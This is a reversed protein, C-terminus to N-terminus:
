NGYESLQQNLMGLYQNFSESKFESYNMQRLINILEKFYSRCKEYDEFKFNRSCIDLILDLMYKQRE